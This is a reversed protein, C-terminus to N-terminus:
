AAASAISASVVASLFNTSQIFIGGAKAAHLKLQESGSLGLLVQIGGAKAAHLKLKESASLGLLVQIGGAKAAHLKLKESAGCVLSVPSLTRALLQFEM